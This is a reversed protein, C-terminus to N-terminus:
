LDDEGHVGFPRYGLSSDFAKATLIRTSPIPTVLNGHM